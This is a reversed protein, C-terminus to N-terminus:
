RPATAGDAPIRLTLTTSEGPGEACDLRAAPGYLGALRERVRALEPDDTCGSGLAVRLTFVTDGADRRADISISDPLRGSPHRVARQILPLLLMPYFRGRRCEETAAITLRPRGGHVATVVELYARVLDLEADITSGSDRLRPLAARLYAILRDLNDAARQPDRAYLAEIDVLTDFLFRPEVQAQMASLRSELVQRELAVQQRRMTEFDQQTRTRQCLVEAVAYIMGGVVVMNIFDALLMLAPSKPAKGREAALQAWLDAVGSQYWLSVAALSAVAASVLLAYVLRTRRSRWADSGADALSWGLFMVLSALLPLMMDMTAPLPHWGVKQFLDVRQPLGILTVVMGVALVWTWRRRPIATWTNWAFALAERWPSSTRTPLTVANM